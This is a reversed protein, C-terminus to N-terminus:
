SPVLSTCRMTIAWWIKRYLLWSVLNKPPAFIVEWVPSLGWLLLENIELM